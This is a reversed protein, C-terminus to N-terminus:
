RLEVNSFVATESVAADHSSVALGAYVPDRLEVTASGVDRFAEGKPAVTLTFLNGKRVLRVTAPAKIPSQVEQTMGGATKRFQLSILGDGHVAVDAYAADPDLSQRVMLCAKRHGNHGKGEFQVGASFTLDGSLKRWVFHFDDEKNWINAGSGTVRYQRTASDYAASGPHMTRGVDSQGEFIGLSKSAAGTVIRLLTLLVIAHASLALRRPKFGRFDDTGKLWPM